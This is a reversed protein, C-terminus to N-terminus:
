GNGTKDENKIFDSKQEKSKKYLLDSPLQGNSETLLSNTGTDIKPVDINQRRLAGDCRGNNNNYLNEELFERTKTLIVKTDNRNKIDLAPSNLKRTGILQLKRKLIASKFDSETCDSTNIETSAIDINERKQKVKYARGVSEEDIGKCMEFDKMKNELLQSMLKNNHKELNMETLATEFEQSTRAVVTSTKVSKEWQLKPVKKKKYYNEINKIVDRAEFSQLKIILKGTELEQHFLCTDYIAFGSKILTKSLPYLKGNTKKLLIEGYKHINDDFISSRFFYILYWVYWYIGITIFGM